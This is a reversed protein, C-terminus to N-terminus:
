NGGQSSLQSFPISVYRLLTPTYYSDTYALSGNAVIRRSVGACYKSTRWASAACFLVQKSRVHEFFYVHIGTQCSIVSVKYFGKLNRTIKWDMKGLLGTCRLMQFTLLECLALLNKSCEHHKKLMISFEFSNM